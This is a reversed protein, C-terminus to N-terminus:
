EEEEDETPRNQQNRPLNKTVTPKNKLLLEPKMKDVPTAFVTWQEDKNWNKKINIAKPYYYAEEPQLDILPDGADWIRNANRDDIIRAYYKGPTLYPFRAVNNELPTIAVHNDSQNLLEVYAPRGSPWDSVRLTLSCLEKEDRTRFSLETKKSDLGYMGTIALSDVTLRYDTANKWGTGSPRLRYLRPNLSDRELASYSVLRWITDAKEELRIGATDIRLAPVSTEFLVPRNFEQQSGSKLEIRMMEKPPRISDPRSPQEAEGEEQSKKKKAEKLLQRQQKELLKRAQEQARRLATRDTTLRLTDNKTQYQHLSDLRMYSVALRLTDTSVLAPSKIWLSLTDSNKSREILFPDADDPLGVINVKPFLTNPAHFILNIRTSDAREYKELYQQARRSKASRLILDNPLFITRRREVITDIMGTKLNFITDTATAESVSPSVDVDLFAVEEDANSFIYDSNTDDLAYVRYRGPTLGEISFRGRDDTRGVHDFPKTFLNKHVSELYNSPQTASSEASSDTAETSEPLRHLGVLKLQMPEMGQASLVRGAIRLSDLSPGTSFTYSFNQLPNGENLDQIADAFDITYTTNPLLSDQFSVNVRHGSAAVRPINKSPPSVIVKTTPDKVEILEDFSLSFREKDLPINVSGPAPNASVFRPPREDRPGGSPNGISACGEAFLLIIICCAAALPGLIHYFPKM